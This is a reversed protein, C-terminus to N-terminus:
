AAPGPVAVWCRTKGSDNGITYGTTSSTYAPWASGAVDSVGCQQNTGFLWYTMRMPRSEGNMMQNPNYTLQIGYRNAGTMPVSKPVSGVTAINTNFGTNSGVAGSDNYCGSTVTVCIDGHVSATYPYTGNLAVYAQITKLTQSVASIIASNNARNQIGTYSVISIAALIAIVVIVILLEVITFGHAKKIM